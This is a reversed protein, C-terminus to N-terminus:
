RVFVEIDHDRAFTLAVPLDFVDFVILRDIPSHRHQDELVLYMESGRIAGEDIPPGTTVAADPRRVGRALRALHKLNRELWRGLSSGGRAKALASRFLRSRTLGARPLLEPPPNVAVVAIGGEPFMDAFASPDSTLIVHDGPESSMFAHCHGIRLTQSILGIQRM